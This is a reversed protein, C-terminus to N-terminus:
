RRSDDAWRVIGAVFDDTLHGLDLGPAGDLCGDALRDLRDKDDLLDLLARAFQGPTATSSLWVSNWGDQLYDAEPGHGRGHRTVLPVGGVLSDVAVLGIAQPMVLVDSATLALAKERRVVRGVFVTGASATLHREQTGRGAVLLRFRADRGHAIRVVERLFGIDKSQEVSGMFLATHGPALGHEVRYAALDADTLAGLDESLQQTNVTNRLSTVRRRPFGADILSQACQPTYAFYWDAQMTLWRKIAPLGSRSSGTRFGHGWYAVSPGRRGLHPLLELNKLAHEVILLDSAQLQLGDLSRYRVRGGTWALRDRLPLVGAMPHADRRPSDGEGAALVLAFGADHLRVRLQEFLDVRYDPIYSQVLIVRRDNTM